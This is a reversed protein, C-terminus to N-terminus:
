KAERDHIDEAHKERDKENKTILYNIVALETGLLTGFILALSINLLIGSIFSINLRDIIIRSVLVFACLNITSVFSLLKRKM